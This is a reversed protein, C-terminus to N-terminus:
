KEELDTVRDKLKEICKVFHWCHDCYPGAYSKNYNFGANGGRRIKSDCVDCNQVKM